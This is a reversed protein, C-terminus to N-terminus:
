SQEQIIVFFFSSTHPESVYGAPRLWQWWQSPNNELCEPSAVNCTTVFHGASVVWPLFPTDGSVTRSTKICALCSLSPLLLLETGPLKSVSHPDPFLCTPQLWSALCLIHSGKKLFGERDRDRDRGRGGMEGEISVSPVSGQRRVPVVVEEECVCVCVCVRGRCVCMHKCMYKSTCVYINLMWMRRRRCWFGRLVQEALVRYQRGKRRPIKIARTEKRKPKWELWVRGTLSDRSYHLVGDGCREGARKDEKTDKSSVDSRTDISVCCKKKGHM